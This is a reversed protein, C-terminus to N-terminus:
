IYVFALLEQSKRTAPSHHDTHCNRCLLICKDAEEECKEVGYLDMAATNVGFLKKSPDLHHFDLCAYNDDYGCMACKGGKREKM